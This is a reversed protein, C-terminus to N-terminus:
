YNIKPILSALNINPVFNGIQTKDLVQKGAGKGAAVLNNSQYNGNRWFGYKGVANEKAEVM